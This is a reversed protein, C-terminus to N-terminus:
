CVIALIDSERVLLYTEGGDKVETGAYKSFIVKDGAAVDLAIHAGSADLRGKGCAIVTGVQQTQKASDLLVVGGATTDDKEKVAIVVRDGLPNLM